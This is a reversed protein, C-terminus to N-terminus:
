ELTELELLRGYEITIFGSGTVVEEKGIIPGQKMGARGPAGPIAAGTDITDFLIEREYLNRASSWRYLTPGSSYLAIEIWLDDGDSLFGGENVAIEYNMYWSSNDFATYEMYYKGPKTDFYKDSVVLQPTSPNTDYFYNLTGTWWYKLHSRGDAGKCSFLLMFLLVFSLRKFFKM